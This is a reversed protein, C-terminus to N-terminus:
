PSLSRPEYEPQLCWPGSAAPERDGSPASSDSAPPPALSAAAVPPRHRCTMTPVCFCSSRTGPGESFERGLRWKDLVDDCPTLGTTLNVLLPATAQKREGYTM